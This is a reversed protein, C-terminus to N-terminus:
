EHREPQQRVGEPHRASGSSAADPPIGNWRHEADSVDTSHCLLAPQEQEM